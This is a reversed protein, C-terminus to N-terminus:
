WDLYAPVVFALIRGSFIKPWLLVGDSLCLTVMAADGFGTRSPSGTVM